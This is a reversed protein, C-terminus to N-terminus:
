RWDFGFRNVLARVAGDSLDAHNTRLYAEAEQYMSSLSQHEGPPVAAYVGEVLAKVTPLLDLGDDGLAAVVREEPPTTDYRGAVGVYAMVGRSLEQDVDSPHALLGPTPPVTM